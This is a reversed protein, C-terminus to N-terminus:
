DEEDPRPPAGPIYRPHGLAARAPPNELADAVRRYFAPDRGFMGLLDYNDRQCVLMVVEWTQHDHDVCPHRNATFLRLCLACRDGQHELLAQFDAETLGYLRLLNRRRSPSLGPSARLPRESATPAIERGEPSEPARAPAAPKQAAYPPPQGCVCELGGAGGEYCLFCEPKAARM